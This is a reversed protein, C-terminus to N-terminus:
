GMPKGLPAACFAGGVLDHLPETHDPEGFKAIRDAAFQEADEESHYGIAEAEALSWWRRTNDSVAWLLRFGPEPYALAAEVLRAADSPALWTALARTDAPEAFCTGIRLVTIDLGFRQHYLSGLAEIAAKSWGYFTDPRPLVDGPLGDSGDPVEGRRYFGVAHNSSALIVKGVGADVAGRLLNHTGVINVQLIDEFSAETSIGGLHVVAQTDQCIKAIAEADLLDVTVAEEGPQIDDIDAIDALRLIRDERRLM